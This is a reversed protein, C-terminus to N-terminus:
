SGLLFYYDKTAKKSQDRILFLASLEKVTQPVAFVVRGLAKEGEKLTVDALNNGFVVAIDNEVLDNTSTVLYYVYDTSGPEVTAAFGNEVEIEVAVWRIASEPDVEAKLGVFRCGDNFGNNSCIEKGVELDVAKVRVELNGVDVKQGWQAPKFISGIAPAKPNAVWRLTTVPACTLRSSSKGSNQGIKTCKEGKKPPAAQIPNLSVTLLFLTALVAIGPAIAKRLTFGKKAQRM